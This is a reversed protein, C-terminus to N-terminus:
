AHKFFHSGFQRADAKTGFAIEHVHAFNGAPEVASSVLGRRPGSDRALREGHLALHDGGDLLGEFQVVSIMCTKSARSPANSTSLGAPGVECSTTSAM